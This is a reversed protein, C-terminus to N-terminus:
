YAATLLMGQFFVLGAKQLEALLVPAREPMAGYSDPGTWFDNLAGTSAGLPVDGPVQLRVRGQDFHSKLRHAMAKLPEM